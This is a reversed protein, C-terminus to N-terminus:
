YFKSVLNKDKQYFFFCYAASRNSCKSPFFGVCHLFLVDSWSALLIVISRELALEPSSCRLVDHFSIKTSLFWIYIFNYLEFSYKYSKCFTKKQAIAKELQVCYSSRNESLLILGDILFFIEETVIKKKKELVWIPFFYIIIIFLVLFTLKLGFDTM